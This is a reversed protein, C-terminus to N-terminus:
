NHGQFIGQSRVGPINYHLKLRFIHVGKSRRVVEPYEANINAAYTQADEEKDFAKVPFGNSKTILYICPIGSECSEDADKVPTVHEPDGVDFSKVEKGQAHADKFQTSEVVLKVIEQIISETIIM